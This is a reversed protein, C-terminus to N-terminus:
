VDIVVEGCLLFFHKSGDVGVVELVEKVEAGNVVVDVHVECYSAVANSGQHQGATESIFNYHLNNYLVPHCPSIDTIVLPKISQVISRKIAMIMNDILKTFTFNGVGHAISSRRTQVNSRLPTL